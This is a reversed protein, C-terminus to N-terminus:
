YSALGLAVKAAYDLETGLLREIRPKGGALHGLLALSEHRLTLDLEPNECVAALSAALKESESPFASIDDTFADDRYRLFRWLPDRVFLDAISDHRRLFAALATVMAPLSGFFREAAERGLIMPGLDGVQIRYYWRHLSSWVASHIAPSFRVDFKLQVLFRHLEENGGQELQIEAFRIMEVRQTDGATEFYRPVFEPPMRGPAAADNMGYQQMSFRGERILFEGLANLAVPPLGAQQLLSQYVSADGQAARAVHITDEPPCGLCLVMCAYSRVGHEQTNEALEFLVNRLLPVPRKKRYLTRLIQEQWQPELSPLIRLLPQTSGLFALHEGAAFRVDPDPDDAYGALREADSLTLAAEFAIMRDRHATAKSVAPTIEGTLRAIRVAVEPTLEAERLIELVRHRDEIGWRVTVRWDSLTMAAELCMPADCHLLQRAHRVLRADGGLVGNLMALDRELPLEAKGELRELEDEALPLRPTMEDEFRSGWGKAYLRSELKRLVMARKEVAIAHRQYITRFMEIQGPDLEVLMKPITFRDTGADKLMRAAGFDRAAVVAAGCSRCFKAEPTWKVCWFCRVERRVAHGCQICLDGPKWDLPQPQACSECVARM